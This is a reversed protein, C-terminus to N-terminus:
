AHGDSSLSERTPVLVADSGRVVPASAKREQLTDRRLRYAVIAAILRWSTSFLLLTSLSLSGALVGGAVSSLGYAVGSVTLSAAVFLPRRDSPAAALPLTFFALEQGGLLLGSVLADIGILWPLGWSVGLWSLSSLAAGFSCLVLVRRGGIRDLTRGWLPTTVVRLLAVTAAYIAIGSFGLGLARLTLVASISATLGTAIGWAAGYALLRRYARDALPLTVDALRPPTETRPPDHQRSMFATTMAGALSRTVLVAALVPGLLTHARGTDLLSALALSAPAGVATCMATRRGFYVGRVQEPVLDGMWALWANHGVVSLLSSLGFLAILLTCKTDISVDVFPLAAIPLTVQRALAQLTVAVRKRGFITTVWAAPLQFVQGFHPLGWLVGLLLPSAGLELGWAAIVAPGFCVSVIEAALGEASCAALSTRLRKASSVPEEITSPRSVFEQSASLCSSSRENMSIDFVPSPPDFITRRLGSLLSPHGLHTRPVTGSGDRTWSRRTAHAGAIVAELARSESVCDLNDHWADITLGAKAAM